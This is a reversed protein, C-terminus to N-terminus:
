KELEMIKRITIKNLSKVVLDARSFDQKVTFENPCAICYMGARKAAIVGVAADEVAVCEKPNIGITKATKLYIDPFPKVKLGDGTVIVNFHNILGIRKLVISVDEFKSTSAIAIIFNKEIKKVLERACKRTKANKIIKHYIGKKEKVLYETGAKLKYKRKLYLATKHNGVGVCKIFVNKTLKIGYKELTEEWAQFHLPETDALLGDMDFIVAKIMAMLIALFM